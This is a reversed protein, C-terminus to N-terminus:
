QINPVEVNRDFWEPIPHKFSELYRNWAATSVPGLVPLANGARRGDAQAALLGRTVDGFGEQAPPAAASAAAPTQPMPTQVQQVVPRDPMSAASSAAAPAPANSSADSMSGTLPANSQAQGLSPTLAILTCALTFSARQILSSM